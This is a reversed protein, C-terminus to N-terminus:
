HWCICRHATTNFWQRENTSCQLSPETVQPVARDTDSCSARFASSLYRARARVQARCPCYLLTLLRRNVTLRPFCTQLTQACVGGFCSFWASGSLPHCCRALRKLTKRERRTKPKLTAFLYSKLALLHMDSCNHQVM